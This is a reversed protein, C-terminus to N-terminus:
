FRFYLFPNYSNNILFMVCVALILVLAAAMYRRCKAKSKERCAKAAEKDDKLQKLKEECNQNEKHILKATYFSLAATLIAFPLFVVGAIAYFAISAVLLVIWRYKVPCIFYVATVAVLFLLFTFETFLM